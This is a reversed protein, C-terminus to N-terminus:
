LLINFMDPYKRELMVDHLAVAGISRGVVDVIFGMTILKLQTYSEFKHEPEATVTADSKECADMLQLLDLELATVKLPVIYLGISIRM